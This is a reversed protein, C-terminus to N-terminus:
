YTFPEDPFLLWLTKVPVNYENQFWIKVYNMIEKQSLGFLSKMDNILDTSIYLKEYRRRYGMARGGNHIIDFGGEDYYDETFNLTSLYKMVLREFRQESIIYKM